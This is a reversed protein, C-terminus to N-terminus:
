THGGSGRTHRIIAKSFILFFSFVRLFPVCELLSAIPNTREGREKSKGGGRRTGQQSSMLSGGGCFKYTSHVVRTHKDVGELEQARKVAAHMAHSLYWSSKTKTRVYCSGKLM